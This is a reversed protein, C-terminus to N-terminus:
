VFTNSVPPIKSVNITPLTKLQLIALSLLLSMSSVLLLKQTTKSRSCIKPPPENSVNLVCLVHFRALVDFSSVTCYIVRRPRNTFVVRVLVWEFVVVSTLLAMLVLFVEFDRPVSLM